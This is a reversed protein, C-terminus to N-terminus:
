STSLEAIVGWFMARASSNMDLPSVLRAFDHAGPDSIFNLHFGYSTAATAFSCINSGGGGDHRCCKNSAYIFVLATIM